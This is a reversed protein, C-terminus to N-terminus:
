RLRIGSFRTGQNGHRPQFGKHELDNYFRQRESCSLIGEARVFKRFAEYLDAGWAKADLKIICKQEMFRQLPNANTIWRDTAVQVPRPLLFKGRKHLRAYGEVMRNLVGPLEQACITALLNVDAKNGVFTRDFLIVQFRRLMGYSMDRLTPTNNCLLFPVVSCDFDFKNAHKLEGTVRKQESIKKLSGDPLITDSQVDDDVFMRKGALHGMSWRDSKLEGVHGAYVLESGLLCMEIKILMTKGNSGKGLLVPIIAFKRGSQLVYGMVENWHRSMGVPDGSRSFIQAIARDYRPCKAKPDYESNIQFSLYDARRHGLFEWTGRDDFWVEGNLCNIFPEAEDTSAVFPNTRRAKEARLLQLVEKMTGVVSVDVDLSLQNISKLILRSLWNEDAPRWVGRRFAFFEGRFSLLSKGDDFSDKLVNKVVRRNFDSKSVSFPVTTKRTQSMIM